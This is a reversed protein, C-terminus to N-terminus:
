YSAIDYPFEGIGLFCRYGFVTKSVHKGNILQVIGERITRCSIDSPQRYSSSSSLTSEVSYDTTMGRDRSSM